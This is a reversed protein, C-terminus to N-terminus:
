FTVVSMSPELCPGPCSMPLPPKGAAAYKDGGKQGQGATALSQMQATLLATANERKLADQYNGKNYHSRYEKISPMQQSNRNQEFESMLM